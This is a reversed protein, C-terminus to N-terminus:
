DCAVVAAAKFPAVIAPAFERCIGGLLGCSIASRSGTFTRTWPTGNVITSRMDRAWLAVDGAPDSTPNCYPPCPLSSRDQPRFAYSSLSDLCGVFFGEFSSFAPDRRMEDVRDDLDNPQIISSAALAAIFESMELQREQAISASVASLGLALTAGIICMPLRESGIKVVYSTSIHM